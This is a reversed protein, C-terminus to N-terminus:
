EGFILYCRGRMEADRLVVWDVSNRFLLGMQM